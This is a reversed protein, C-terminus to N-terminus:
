ASNCCSSALLWPDLDVTGMKPHESVATLIIGAVNGALELLHTKNEGVALLSPNVIRDYTM